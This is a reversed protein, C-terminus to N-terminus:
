SCVPSREWGGRLDLLWNNVGVPITGSRYILFM